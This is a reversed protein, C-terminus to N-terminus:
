TAAPPSRTPRPAAAVTMLSGLDARLEAVESVFHRRQYPALRAQLAIALTVGRERIERGGDVLAAPRDELNVWWSTLFRELRAPTAGGRLLELLRQQQAQRYAFWPEATDPMAVVAERVLGRQAADLRGTWREIRETYREVRAEHREDPDSALYQDRYDANRDALENELHDYQAPDLDGLIRVALPVALDAVQEMEACVVGRVEDRHRDDVEFVLEDHVQLLMRVPLREGRIREDLRIMAIKILDAATGQIPANLAMAQAM